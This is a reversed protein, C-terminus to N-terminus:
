KNKNKFHKMAQKMQGKSGFMRNIKEQELQRSNLGEYGMEKQLKVYNDFRKQSLEGNAIAQQVACGPEKTHSCDKFKCMAALDEIDEFSRSLDASDLQLERMGPTDIVIGGRPLLLLQRRTTTHRGKDADGIERTTLIEEGMLRNILTSKGM